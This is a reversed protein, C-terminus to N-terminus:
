MSKINKEKSHGTDLKNIHKYQCFIQRHGQYIYGNVSNTYQFYNHIISRLNYHHLKSQDHFYRKTQLLNPHGLHNDSHM